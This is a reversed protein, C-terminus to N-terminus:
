TFFGPDTPVELCPAGNRLVQVTRTAPIFRYTLYCVDRPNSLVEQRFIAANIAGELRASPTLVGNQNQDVLYAGLAQTFAYNGRDILAPWEVEKGLLSILIGRCNVKFVRREGAARDIEDPYADQVFSLWHYVSEHITTELQESGYWVGYRSGDSFRTAQWNEQLFPYAVATGYDFPRTIGPAHSTPKGLLEAAIFVAQDLDNGLDDFLAQSELIGKINRYLDGNYDVVQSILDRFV